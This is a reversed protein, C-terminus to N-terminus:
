ANIVTAGTVMATAGASTFVLVQDNGGGGDITSQGNYAIVTDKGGGASVIATATDVNYVGAGTNLYITDDGGGGKIHTANGILLNVSDNGGGGDVPSSGTGTDAVIITDSGSRGTINAGISNGTYFINDDNKSGVIKVSTASTVLV